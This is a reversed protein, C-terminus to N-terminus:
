ERQSHSHQQPAHAEVRGGPSPSTSPTPMVVLVRLWSSSSEWRAIQTLANTLACLLAGSADARRPRVKPDPPRAAPMQPAGARDQVKPEPAPRYHAIQSIAFYNAPPSTRVGNGGCATYPYVTFHASSPVARAVRLLNQVYLHLVGVILMGQTSRPWGSDGSAIACDQPEVGGPQSRPHRETAALSATASNM